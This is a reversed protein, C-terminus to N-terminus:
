LANALAVRGAKTIVATAGDVTVFGADVLDTLDSDSIRWQNGHDPTSNDQCDWHSWEFVDSVWEVRELYGCRAAHELAEIQADSPTFPKKVAM